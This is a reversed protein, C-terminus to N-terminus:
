AQFWSVETDTWGPRLSQQSRLYGEVIQVETVENRFPSFQLSVEIELSMEFKLIRQSELM